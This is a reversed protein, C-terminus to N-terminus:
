IAAKWPLKLFAFLRIHNIMLNHERAIVLMGVSSRRVRTATTSKRLKVLAAWDNPTVCGATLACILRNCPRSPVSSSSLLAGPTVSVEAATRRVRDYSSWYAAVLVVNQALSEIERESLGVRVSGNIIAITAPVAGNDRISQEMKLATERNTPYPLGHTILTSELAVVPKNQQFAESVEPSLALNSNM